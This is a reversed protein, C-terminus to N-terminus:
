NIAALHANNILTTTPLYQGTTVLDTPVHVKSMGAKHIVIILTKICTNVM